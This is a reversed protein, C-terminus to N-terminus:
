RHNRRSDGADEERLYEPWCVSEDVWVDNHLLSTAKGHIEEEKDKKSFFFFFIASSSDPM